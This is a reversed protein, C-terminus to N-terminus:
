TQDPEQQGAVLQPGRERARLAGLGITWYDVLRGGAIDQRDDQHSGARADALRGADLIASPASGNLSSRM